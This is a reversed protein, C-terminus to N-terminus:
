GHCRNLFPDIIPVGDKAFDIHNRTVVALGHVMAAAAMFGDQDADSERNQSPVGDTGGM